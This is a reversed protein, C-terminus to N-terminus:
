LTIYRYEQYLIIVMDQNVIGSYLAVVIYIYAYVIVQFFPTILIYVLYFPFKTWNSEEKWTLWLVAKFRRLM